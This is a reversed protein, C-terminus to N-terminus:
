RPQGIKLVPVAVDFQLDIRRDRRNRKIAIAHIQRDLEAVAVPGIGRGLQQHMVLNLRDARGFEGFRM